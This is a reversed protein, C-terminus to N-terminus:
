NFFALMKGKITEGLDPITAKLWVLVAAAAVIILIYVVGHDVVFTGTESRLQANAAAAAARLQAATQLAALEVNAKTNTISSYFGKFLKKM